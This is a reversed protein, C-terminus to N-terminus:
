SAEELLAQYSEYRGPDVAGSGVAAQVACDPEHTHSCGRFRCEDALAALEPFCQPLLERQVGWLGVDSFGPTDAVLGGAKMALLRGGVTTHRGTRTRRSLDGTRLRLAPDLRNLLSSKGAGSPGVLASVGEGMAAGLAEIGVSSEVSTLVVGYGIGQYLERVPASADAAGPLDQKNIVLISPLGNAEGMALLRDVLRLRLAPQTAAVVVVVRDLNAVLIKARVGGPGRRLLESRRPLVEEITAGDGTLDVRVRDGIVVRDGSRAQLKLRGRISTDLARGDDLSVRYVGGQVEHVLGTSTM